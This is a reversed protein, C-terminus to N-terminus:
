NLGLYAVLDVVRENEVCRHGEAEEKTRFKRVYRLDTTYSGQHGPVAVFMGNGKILAYRM